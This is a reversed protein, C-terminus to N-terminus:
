LLQLLDSQSLIRVKIHFAVGQWQGDLRIHNGRGDSYRLLFQASSGVWGVMRGSKFATHIKVTSRIGGLASHEWCGKSPNCPRPIIQERSLRNCAKFAKLFQKYTIKHCVLPHRFVHGTEPRDSLTWVFRELAVRFPESRGVLTNSIRVFLQSNLGIYWSDSVLIYLQGQTAIVYPTHLTQYTLRVLERVCLLHISISSRSCVLIILSSDILVM